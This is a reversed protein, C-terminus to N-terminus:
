MLHCSSSHGKYVERLIPKEEICKKIARSCRPYFACGDPPSIPSPMDGHLIEKKIRHKKPEPIPISSLLVKTYPHLPNEYLESSEGTEVIKGLYMVIVRDSIYEVVRLDHAIFLYTLNFKNQLDKMLNIIQAQISVDLASIPEDAVIFEPEVALARALGIRQRQGGSFEHPFRRLADKGVGVSDLLEIVRERRNGTHLSHIDLPEKVINEIKMRPNLSSFPDQFVMQMARRKKRLAIGKFKLLDEGKFVISGETPEILRLITKGLTSKGCGSEGVLGVTEGKFIQLDVGDVARVTQIKNSLFGKKSKFYTKINKLKLLAEPPPNTDVKM